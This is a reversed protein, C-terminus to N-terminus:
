TTVPSGIKLFTSIYSFWQTNILAISDRFDLKHELKTVSGLDRVVSPRTIDFSASWDDPLGLLSLNTGYLSETSVHSRLSLRPPFLLVTM